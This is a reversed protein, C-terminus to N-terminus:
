PEQSGLDLVYLTLIKRDLASLRGEWHPMYGQRGDQITTFVAGRDGGYIWFDDSLNPAGLEVNGTGAEGHCAACNEAFVEGGAALASPDSPATGEPEAGSLSRVFSVVDLIQKRDLIGDSGFAQMQAFRTEPHTSNIGVRLTEMVAAPEGGWLWARDTLSPYGDGGQAQLGHCVACNDEFLTRGTQRVTQMLSEDAQVEAFDLTEIRQTWAAREQAAAQLNEALSTRQNVGLIGKTYSEVSPWAPLLIWCVIATVVTSALFLWIVKPVPRNLETIGNWEHGTTTYGSHPDREEVAM